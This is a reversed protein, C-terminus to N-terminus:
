NRASRVLDDAEAYFAGYPAWNEVDFARRMGCKLCAVSTNNSKTIPRSTHRHRCGFLRFFSTNVRRRGTEEPSTPAISYASLINTYQM